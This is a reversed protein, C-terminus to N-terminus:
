NKFWPIQEEVDRLKYYQKWMPVFNILTKSIKYQGKWPGREYQDLPNFMQDMLRITNEIVSMSAMPSRMISMAEDVKPSFFLLEARLRFAQYAVFAWFHDEDDDDTVKSFAFHALAITSLLATVEGIARRINAKEHDSLAAWEESMLSYKFIKLDKKLNKLFNFTTVYNGETFQDLRQIYQKRGYRRKFGPVIFKRFMYAMRGIALRQLAVRGLDSYEGHLRSLLGKAKRLFQEQDSLTWKSKELSVKDNIELKGDKSYYQDLMNGLLNGDKDYAKIDMMLAFLFRSQMWHEGAQQVFFISSLDLMQGVKTKKSFNVDTINNHLINAWQIILSGVHEPARAGVDGMMGPLWKTYRATAKSLSKATVHEGAFADIATMVEGIVVNAAGQVMNVALLSMSTYKNLADALKAGDITLDESVVFLSGPKARQGYVAMEFWDGFQKAIQTNEEVSPRDAEERDEDVNGRGKIASRVMAGFSNRKIARRNDIFFRTMELEPLIQRKIYYDNAAEWWKFYIGALDYSQNKPEIQNVYHIPLFMKPNGLEDTLISEGRETDEVRVIFDAKFTEGVAVAAPQGEKIRETEIKPVGPLRYGLRYSQPLKNDAEQALDSIFLYYKARHDKSKRLAEEQQYFPTDPDIGLKKMFKDWQPNRWKDIVNSFKWRNNAEWTQALEAANESIFGREVMTSIALDSSTANYYFERYEKNTIYPEGTSPDISVSLGEMAELFAERKEDRYERTNIKRWAAMKANADNKLKKWYTQKSITGNKLQRLLEKHDPDEESIGAKYIKDRIRREELIVEHSWQTILYGTPAGDSDRELFENNFEIESTFAKKNSAKEYEIVQKLIENKKAISERYSQEEAKVFANVVAAAVPDSTDLMNDIWRSLENIDRSATELERLLLNETREDISAKQREVEKEVYEAETGLESDITSKLARKKRLKHYEKRYEAKARDEIEKYIGNYHPALWKAMIKIGETKYLNKLFNKKTITDNLVEKVASDNIVSPDKLMLQQLEDLTEYAILFDSWTQLVEATFPDGNEQMKKYRKWLRNTVDSSYRVMSTLAETINNASNFEDYFLEFNLRKVFSYRKEMIALRRDLAERAKDHLKELDTIPTAKDVHAEFEVSEKYSGEERSLDTAMEYLKNRREGRAAAGSEQSIDKSVIVIYKAPGKQVAVQKVVAPFGEETSQKALKNAKAFSFTRKRRSRKGYKDTQWEKEAILGLRDEQKWVLPNNVNTIITPGYRPDQLYKQVEPDPHVVNQKEISVEVYNRFSDEPLMERWFERDPNSKFRAYLEPDKIMLFGAIDRHDYVLLPENNEDRVLSANDPDDLWDGFWKMFYDSHVGQYLRKQSGRTELEAEISEWLQSKVYSGEKNVIFPKIHCAQAM